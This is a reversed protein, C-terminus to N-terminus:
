KSVIQSQSAPMTAEGRGEGEDIAELLSARVSCEEERAPVVGLLPDGTEQPDFDLQPLLMHCNGVVLTSPQNSRPTESAEVDQEHIDDGGDSAAPLPVALEIGDMKRHLQVQMKGAEGLRETLCATRMQRRTEEDIGYTMVALTSSKWPELGERNSLYILLATFITGSAVVAMPFTFFAWRIHYHPAWQQTTGQHVNSGANRIANTMSEAILDFAHSLNSAHYLPKMIPSSYLWPNDYITTVSLPPLDPTAPAPVLGHLFDVTSALFTQSANFTVNTPYWTENLGQPHLQFDDRKLYNPQWLPNWAITDLSTRNNIRTMLSQLPSPRWSNTVKRSREALIRETLIGESVRSDFVKLCLELGCETAIPSSDQWASETSLFAKGARIFSFAVLLTQSSTFSYTNKPDATANGSMLETMNLSKNYYFDFNNIHLNVRPLTFQTGPNTVATLDGSDPKHFVDIGMFQNGDVSSKVLNRSVDYCSSCVGM